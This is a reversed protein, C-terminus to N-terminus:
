QSDATLAAAQCCGQSSLDSPVPPPSHMWVGPPGESDQANGSLLLQRQHQVLIDGVRDLRGVTRHPGNVRHSGVKVEGEGLGWCGGWSMFAASIHETFLWAFCFQLSAISDFVNELKRM